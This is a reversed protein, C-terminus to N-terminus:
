EGEDRHSQAFGINMSGEPAKFEFIDQKFVPKSNWVLHAVFRPAGGEWKSTIMIRRPVPRDGEEVWLQVDTEEGRIAIHHCNVGAIRTKDALYLIADQSGILHSSADRHIFDMLPAELDLEELAFDMAAEIDKPISAQAYYNKESNFVTLMGDHFYLEKHVVGDFSSIHLSGPRDISVTVETSNSVILGSGLRADTYTVGGIFVRDLSETYASMSKLVEVARADQRVGSDQAAVSGACAFGTLLFISIRFKSIM